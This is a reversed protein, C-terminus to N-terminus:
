KNVQTPKAKALRKTAQALRWNAQTPSQSAQVLTVLNLILKLQCSGAQTLCQSAQARRQPARAQRGPPISPRICLHVSPHISLCVKEGTDGTPDAARFLPDADWKIFLPLPM